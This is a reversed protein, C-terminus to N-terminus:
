KTTKLVVWIKSNGIDRYRCCKLIELLLFKFYKDCVKMGEEEQQMHYRERKANNAEDRFFKRTFEDELGMLGREAHQRSRESDAIEKGLMWVKASPEGFPLSLMVMDDKVRYTRIFCYGYRTIVPNGPKRYLFGTALHEAHIWELRKLELAEKRLTILQRHDSMKSDLLVKVKLLATTEDHLFSVKDTVELVDDWVGCQKMEARKKDRIARSLNRNARQWLDKMKEYTALLRGTKDLDEEISSLEWDYTFADKHLHTLVFSYASRDSIMDLREEKLGSVRKQYNQLRGMSFMLQQYQAHRREDEGRFTPPPEEIDKLADFTAISDQVLGETELRNREERIKSVEYLEIEEVTWQLGQRFIGFRKISKAHRRDFKYIATLDQFDYFHSNTTAMEYREKELRIRENEVLDLEGSKKFRFSQENHRHRQIADVMWPDTGSGFGLLQSDEQYLTSLEKGCANCRVGSAYNSGWAKAKLHECCAPQPVAKQFLEPSFKLLSMLKSKDAQKKEKIDLTLRYKEGSTEKLINKKVERSESIVKQFKKKTKQEHVRIEDEVDSRRSNIWNEVFRIKALEMAQVSPKIGAKIKVIGKKMDLLVGGLVANIQRSNAPDTLAAAADSEATSEFTKIKEEAYARLEAEEHNRFTTYKNDLENIREMSEDNIEQLRREWQRQERNREITAADVNQLASDFYRHNALNIEFESGIFDHNDNYERVSHSIQAVTGNEVWTIHCDKVVM